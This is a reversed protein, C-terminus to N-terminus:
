TLSFKKRGMETTIIIKGNAYYYRVIIGAIFILLGVIPLLIGVVGTPNIPEEALMSKKPDSKSSYVTLERGEAEKSDLGMEIATENFLTDYGKYEEEGVTYKYRVVYKRFPVSGRPSVTTVKGTVTDSNSIFEKSKKNSDFGTYFLLMSIFLLFVGLALLGTFILKGDKLTAIRRSDPGAKIDTAYEGSSPRYATFGDDDWDSNDEEPMFDDPVSPPKVGPEVSENSNYFGYINSYSSPNQPIDNGGVFENQTKGGNSYGSGMSRNYRIQDAMALIQAESLQLEREEREMERYRRGRYGSNINRLFPDSSMHLPTRRRPQPQSARYSNLMADMRRLADVQEPTKGRMDGQRQRPAPEREPTKRPLGRESYYQSMVQSVKQDYELRKRAQEQAEAEAQPDPANENTSYGNEENSNEPQYGNYFLDNDREDM